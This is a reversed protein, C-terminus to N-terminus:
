ANRVHAVKREFMVPSSFLATVKASDTIEVAEPEEATKVLDTSVVYIQKDLYKMLKELIMADDCAITVLCNIRGTEADLITVMEHPIFGRHTFAGLVRDLAGLRNQLRCCITKKSSTTNM